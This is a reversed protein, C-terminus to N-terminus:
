RGLSRFFQMAAPGLVAGISMGISFGIAATIFQMKIYERMDHSPVLVYGRRRTFAELLNRAHEEQGPTMPGENTLLAQLEPPLNSSAPPTTPDTVQGLLPEQIYSGLVIDPHEPVRNPAFSFVTRPVRRQRTIRRQLQTARQRGVPVFGQM